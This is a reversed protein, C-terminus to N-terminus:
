SGCVVGSWGPLVGGDRLTVTPRAAIAGTLCRSRAEARRVVRGGDNFMDAGAYDLIRLFTAARTQSSHRARLSPGAHMAWGPRAAGGDVADQGPLAQVAQGPEVPGGTFGDAAVFPGPGTLQDVNADLFQAVNGVAAPARDASRCALAVALVGGVLARAALWHDAVAIDVGGGGVAGAHGVALDQAVPALVGGGCVPLPGLGELWWRQWVASSPWGGMLRTM